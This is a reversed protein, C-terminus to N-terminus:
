DQKFCEAIINVAYIFGVEFSHKKSIHSISFLMDRIQEYESPSLSEKYPKLRRNIEDTLIQDIKEYDNRSVALNYLEELIKNM